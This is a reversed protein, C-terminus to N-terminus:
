IRDFSLIYTRLQLQCQLVECTGDVQPRIDVVVVHKPDTSSNKKKLVYKKNIICATKSHIHKALDTFMELYETTNNYLMYSVIDQLLLKINKM